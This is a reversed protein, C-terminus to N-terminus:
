TTFPLGDNDSSQVPGEPLPGQVGDPLPEVPALEGDSITGGDTPPNMRGAKYYAATYPFSPADGEKWSNTNWINYQEIAKAVLVAVKNSPPRIAGFCHSAYRNTGTFTPDLAGQTTYTATGLSGGDVTISDKVLRYRNKERVANSVNGGICYVKRGEIRVVIDNHTAGSYKKATNGFDVKDYYQKNMSGGSQKRNYIIIDGVQVGGFDGFGPTNDNYVTDVNFKSAWKIQRKNNQTNIVNKDTSTSKTGQRPDFYRWGGPAAKVELPSTTTESGEITCNQKYFTFYKRHASGRKFETGTSTSLYSIFCASWPKTPSTVYARYATLNTVDPM